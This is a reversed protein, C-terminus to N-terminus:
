ISTTVTSNYVHRLTATALKELVTEKNGLMTDYIESSVEMFKETSQSHNRMELIKLALELDAIKKEEDALLNNAKEETSLRKEEVEVIKKCLSTRLSQYGESELDFDNYWKQVSNEIDRAYNQGINKKIGAIYESLEDFGGCTESKSEKIIRSSATAEFCSSRSTNVDQFYNKEKSFNKEELAQKLKKNEDQAEKLRKGMQQVESEIAMVFKQTKKEYMEQIAKTQPDSVIKEKEKSIATKFSNLARSENEKKNALQKETAKKAKLYENALFELGKPNASNISPKSPAQTPVAIEKPKPLAFLRPSITHPLKPSKIPSFPSPSAEPSRQSMPPTEEFTSSISISEKPTKDPVISISQPPNVAPPSNEIKKPPPIFDSSKTDQALKKARELFDSVRSSTQSM